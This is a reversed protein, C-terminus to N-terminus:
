GEYTDVKKLIGDLFEKIDDKKDFYVGVLFLVFYRKGKRAMFINGVSKGNSQLLACRSEDGWSWLDNRDVEKVDGAASMGINTGLKMGRYADRAETPSNCVGVFCNVYLGEQDGDDSQYDYSMEKSGDLHRVKSFKGRNKDFKLNDVFQSVHEATVVVDKDAEAVPEDIEHMFAFYSFLCFGGCILFMSGAVVLFVFIGSNRFLKKPPPRDDIRRRRPTPRDRHREWEMREEAAEMPSDPAVFVYQCVDCRVEEGSSRESIAFLNGCDPCIVNMM